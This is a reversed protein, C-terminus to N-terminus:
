QNTGLSLIDSHNPAPLMDPLIGIATQDIKAALQHEVTATVIIRGPSFHDEDIRLLRLHTASGSSFM